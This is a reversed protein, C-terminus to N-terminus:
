FTVEVPTGIGAWQYCFQAAAYPMNICGHSGTRWQGDPDTHPVNTGPGMYPRWPADHLYIGNGTIQLAFSSVSTEYWFPSGPGWPSVFTFPSHRSMVSYRGVPTILEPRGTTVASNYVLEGNEYAYWWQRGVSVIIYKGQSTPAAPPAATIVPVNAPPVEVVPRPAPAPQPELAAEPILDADRLIDVVQVLTITGPAPQGPVQDLWLQLVARSFRQALYPGHREPESVPLGYRAVAAAEDGNLYASRLQPHTLFALRAEASLTPNDLLPQAPLPIGRGALWADFQADAHSAFLDDIEARQQQLSWRLVGGQFVQYAADDVIYRSSVPYGLKAAGGLAQFERWLSIGETNAVVYGTDEPATPPATQSYFHGDPVDWDAVPELVAQGHAIGYATPMSLGLGAAAYWLLSRRSLAATHDNPANAPLRM